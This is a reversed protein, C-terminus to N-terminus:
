DYKENNIVIKKVLSSFFNSGHTNYHKDCDWSFYPESLKNKKIYTKAKKLPQIYNYNSWINEYFPYIKNRIFLEGENLDEKNTFHLPFLNSIVFLKTNTDVKSIFRKQIHSYIIKNEEFSDIYHNKKITKKDLKAEKSKQLSTLYIYVKYTNTQKLKILYNRKFLNFKSNYKKFYNSDKPIEIIKGDVFDYRRVWERANGNISNNIFDNHHVFLFLYDLKFRKILKDYIDTQDALGIGRASFNLIEFNPLKEKIKSTIDEGDTLEINEIMSDGLLGVRKIKKLISVDDISRMGFNNYTVTSKNCQVQLDLTVNKPHWNGYDESAFLAVWSPLSSPIMKTKVATFSAVEFLFLFILSNIVIKKIYKNM